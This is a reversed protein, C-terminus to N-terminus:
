QGEDIVDGNYNYYTIIGEDDSPEQWNDIMKDIVDTVPIGKDNCFRNIQMNREISKSYDRIIEHIYMPLNFENAIKKWPARYERKVHTADVIVSYGLILFHKAMVRACEWIFSEEDPKWQQGHKALRITDPNIIVWGFKGKYTKAITSKGSCPLGVMIAFKQTM